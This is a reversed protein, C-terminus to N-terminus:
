AKPAERTACDQWGEARPWSDEAPVANPNKHRQKYSGSETRNTRYITVFGQTQAGQLLKVFVYSKVEDKVEPIDFSLQTVVEEITRTGDCARILSALWRSVKTLSRDGDSFERIAYFTREHQLPPNTRTKLAEVIQHLNCQLEVVHTFNANSPVDSWLLPEDSSVQQGSQMKAQTSKMLAEEATLLAATMQEKGVAHERVFAMFDSRFDRGVYYRRLASGVLDPRLLVRHARWELYFGLIDVVTQDIAPLLWRFCEVSITLFERLELLIERDLNQM